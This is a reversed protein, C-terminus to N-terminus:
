PELTLRWPEMKLRWLEQIQLKNRIRTRGKVKIPNQNSKKSHQPDPDSKLFDYPDLDLSWPRFNLTTSEPYFNNFAFASIEHCQPRKRIETM